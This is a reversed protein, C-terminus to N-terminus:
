KNINSSIYEFIDNTVSTSEVAIVAYKSAFNTTNLTLVLSNSAKKVVYSYYSGYTKSEFVGIECNRSKMGDLQPNNLETEEIKIDEIDSFDFTMLSYKSKCSIGTETKEIKVYDSNSNIVVITSIVTIILILFAIISSIIIIKKKM